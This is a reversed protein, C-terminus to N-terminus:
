ADDLACESSCYVAPWQPHLAVGCALCRNGEVRPTECMQCREHADAPELVHPRHCGCCIQQSVDYHTEEVHFTCLLMGNPLRM